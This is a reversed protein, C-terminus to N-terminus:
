GFTVSVDSGMVLVNAYAYAPLLSFLCVAVILRIFKKRM